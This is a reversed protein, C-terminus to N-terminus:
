DDGSPPKGEASRGAEFMARFDANSRGGVSANASGSEANESRPTGGFGGRKFGLGGRRGGRGQGPRSVPAPRMGGGSGAGGKKKGLLDAVDGTRAEPGLISVDVGQRVNFADKVTQFEVIAGEEQRRLQIKVIPGYSEMVARIRADNVTDPLKM